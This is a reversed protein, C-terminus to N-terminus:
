HCTPLYTPQNTPLHTPPYNPLYTPPYTPLYHTQARKTRICTPRQCAQQAREASTWSMPARVTWYLELDGGSKPKQCGSPWLFLFGYIDSHQWLKVSACFTPQPRRWQGMGGVHWVTL